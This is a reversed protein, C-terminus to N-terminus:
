SHFILHGCMFYPLSLQCLSSLHSWLFYCQSSKWLDWTQNEAGGHCSVVMELERELEDPDSRLGEGAAPLLVYSYM